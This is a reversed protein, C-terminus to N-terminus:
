FEYKLHLFAGGQNLYGALKVGYSKLRTSFLEASLIGILTGSLVAFLDHRRSEVRSYATFISLATLPIGFMGGYRLSVFQSSSFVWSSHGSPFNYKGGNPRRGIKYGFINSNKLSFKLAFTLATSLASSYLFQKLGEIDKNYAILALSAVPNLVTVYDGIIEAASEKNQDIAILEGAYSKQFFLTSFGLISFLFLQRM